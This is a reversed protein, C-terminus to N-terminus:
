CQFWCRVRKNWLFERNLAGCRCIILLIWPLNCIGAGFYSSVDFIKSNQLLLGWYVLVSHDLSSRAREVCFSMCGVQGLELVRIGSLPGKSTATAFRRLGCGRFIRTSNMTNRIRQLRRVARAGLECFKAFFVRLDFFHGGSQRSTSDCEQWKDPDM